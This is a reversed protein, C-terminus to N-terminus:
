SWEEFTLTVRSNVIGYTYFYATSGLTYYGGNLPMDGSMETNNYSMYMQFTASNSVDSILRTGPYIVYYGGEDPDGPMFPIEMYGLWGEPYNFVVVIDIEEETPPPTPPTPPEEEEPWVQQTGVMIKELDRGNFVGGALEKAKLLVSM